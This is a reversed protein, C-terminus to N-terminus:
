GPRVDATIDPRQLGHLAATVASRLVQADAGARSRLNVWRPWSAKQNTGYTPLLAIALTSIGM